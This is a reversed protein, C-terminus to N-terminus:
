VPSVPTVTEQEEERRDRRGEEKDPENGDDMTHLVGRQLQSGSRTPM